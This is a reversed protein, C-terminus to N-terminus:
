RQVQFFFSLMRAESNLGSDMCKTTFHRAQSCARQPAQTAPCSFSPSSAVVDRSNSNWSWNGQPERTAQATLKGGIVAFRFCARLYVFMSFCMGLTIVDNSINDGGILM